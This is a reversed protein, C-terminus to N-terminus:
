VHLMSCYKEMDLPDCKSNRLTEFYVHEEYGTYSSRAWSERAQERVSKSERESLEDTLM